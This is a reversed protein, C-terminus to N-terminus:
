HMIARLAFYAFFCLGYNYLDQAPIDYNAGEKVVIYHNIAYSVASAIGYYNESLFSVVGTALLNFPVLVEDIREDSSNLGYLILSVCPVISWAWSLYRDYGNSLWITTTICPVAFLFQLYSTFKYLKEM